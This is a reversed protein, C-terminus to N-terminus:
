TSGTHAEIRKVCHRLVIQNSLAECHDVGTAGHDHEPNQDGSVSPLELAQISRWLPNTRGTGVESFRQPIALVM